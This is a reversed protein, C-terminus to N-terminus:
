FTTILMRLTLKLTTLSHFTARAAPPLERGPQLERCFWLQVETMGGWSKGGKPPLSPFLPQNPRQANEAQMFQNEPTNTAKHLNNLVHKGQYTPAEITFNRGADHMWTCTCVALLLSFTCPLVHSVQVFTTFTIHYGHFEPKTVWLVSGKLLSTIAEEGTLTLQSTGWCIRYSVNSNFVSIGYDATKGKKHSFRYYTSTQIRYSHSSPHWFM